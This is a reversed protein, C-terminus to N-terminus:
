LNFELFYFLYCAEKNLQFILIELNKTPSYCLMINHPKLVYILM